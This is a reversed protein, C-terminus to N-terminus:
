DDIGYKKRLQEIVQLRHNLFHAPIDFEPDDTHIIDVQIKKQVAKELDGLSLPYDVPVVFRITKLQNVQPLAQLFPAIDVLPSDGVITLTELKQLKRLETLLSMVAPGNKLAENGIQLSKLNPMAQLFKFDAFLCKQSLYLSELKSFTFSGAPAAWTFEIPRDTKELSGAFRDNRKSTLGLWYADASLSKLEPVLAPDIWKLYSADPVFLHTAKEYLFHHHELENKTFVKEPLMLLDLGRGNHKLGRTAWVQDFMAIPDQVEAPVVVPPFDLGIRTGISFLLLSKGEEVFTRENVPIIMQSDPLARFHTPFTSRKEVRVNKVTKSVELLREWDADNLQCGVITIGNLLQWRNGVDPLCNWNEATNLVGAVQGEKFSHLEIRRFQISDAKKQPEVVIPGFIQTWMSDNILAHLQSSNARTTVQLGTKREGLIIWPNKLELDKADIEPRLGVLNVGLLGAEGLRLRRLYDNSANEPIVIKPMNANGSNLCGGWHLTRAIYAKKYSGKTLWDTPWGSKSSEVLIILDFITLFVIPLLSVVVLVVWMPRFIRSLRTTQIPAQRGAAYLPLFILSMAAVLWMGLDIVAWGYYSFDSSYIFALVALSMHTLAVAWWGSKARVAIGLPVVLFGLAILFDCCAGLPGSKPLSFLQVSNLALLWCVAVVALLPLFLLTGYDPRGILRQWSPKTEIYALGAPLAAALFSVVALLLFRWFEGVVAPWVEALNWFLYLSHGIALLGVFGGAILIWREATSFRGAFLCTFYVVVAWNGYSFRPENNHLQIYNYFVVVACVLWFGGLSLALWGFRSPTCAANVQRFIKGLRTPKARRLRGGPETQKEDEGFFWAEDMADRGFVQQHSNLFM